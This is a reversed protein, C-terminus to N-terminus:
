VHPLHQSGNMTYRDKHKNKYMHCMEPAYQYGSAHVCM